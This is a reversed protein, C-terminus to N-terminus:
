HKKAYFDPNIVDWLPPRFSFFWTSILSSAAFFYKSKQTRVQWVAFINQIFIQLRYYSTRLRFCTFHTLISIKGLEAGAGFWRSCLMKDEQSSIMAESRYSYVFVINDTREYSIYRISLLTGMNSNNYWKFTDATQKRRSTPFYVARSNSNYPQHKYIFKIIHVFEASEEKGIGIEVKLYNNFM